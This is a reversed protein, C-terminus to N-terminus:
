LDSTMKVQDAGMRIANIEGERSSGADIEQRDMIKPSTVIWPLFEGM